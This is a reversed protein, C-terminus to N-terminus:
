FFPKFILEKLTIFLSHLFNHIQLFWNSSNEVSIQFGALPKKTEDVVQKSCSFLKTAPHSDVLLHDSCDLNSKLGIAHYYISLHIFLTSVAPLSTLSFYFYFYLFLFYYSINLVVSHTMTVFIKM